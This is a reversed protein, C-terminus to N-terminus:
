PQVRMLLNIPLIDYHGPKATDWATAHGNSISQIFYLRGTVSRAFEGPMVDGANSLSIILRKRRRDTM